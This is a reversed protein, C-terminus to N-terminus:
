RSEAALRVGFGVLITGTLADLARKIGSQRLVDGASSTLLALAAIWVCGIGVFMLALLVADLTASPGPSVFQPIFSTFFVAIKPNLINSLLGQQFPSGERAGGLPHATDAATAGHRLSLLTRVGLYVLYAAGLLKVATFVMSSTQLIAALGVASAATWVLLGTEIGLGTLLAARRGRMLANRTVLAMDPGPTVVLLGAVLLFALLNSM